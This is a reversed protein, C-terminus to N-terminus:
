ERAPELTWFVVDQRAAYHLLSPEVLESDLEDAMTNLTITADASQLPWPPHHIEARLVREKEDLTYLCYRETLWHELTGPAPPL